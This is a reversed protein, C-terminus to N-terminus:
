HRVGRRRAPKKQDRNFGQIILRFLLPHTPRYTEGVHKGFFFAVFGPIEEAPRQTAFSTRIEFRGPVYTRGDKAVSVFQFGARFWRFRKGYRKAHRKVKGLLAKLRNVLDREDYVPPAKWAIPLKFRWRPHNTPPPAKSAGDIWTVQKTFPRFYVSARLPEAESEHIGKYPATNKKKPKAAAPSKRPPKKPQFRGSKDRKPPAVKAGRKAFRGFRDRRLIERRRKAV